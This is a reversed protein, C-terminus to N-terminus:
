DLLNRLASNLEPFQFKFGADLLNKPIVNQGKLIVDASEGFLTRIVFEPVVFFSPRNLVSGLEKSFTYNTVPSPATFNFAGESKENTILFIIGEIMDKIHIWSMCQKGSGLPGGTFLKFPTLMQQLAGAEPSLVIGTRLLLTRIGLDQSKLSEAEWDVCLEALFDNGSSSTETFQFDATEYMGYFGIASGHLISKPKVALKSLESNIKKTYDVRSTRLINKRAETWRGGIVAEGVLNVLSDFGNLQLYNPEIMQVYEINKISSARQSRTFVVVTHNKEALFKALHTGIFGAGGLIGIKM